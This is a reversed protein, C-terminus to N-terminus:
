VDFTFVWIRLGQHRKVTLLRVVSDPVPHCLLLVRWGSSRLSFINFFSCLRLVQTFVDLIHRLLIGSPSSLSISPFIQMGHGSVERINSTLKCAYSVTIRLMLLMLSSCRPGDTWVASFLCWSDRRCGSCFSVSCGPSSSNPDGGQMRNEREGEKKRVPM